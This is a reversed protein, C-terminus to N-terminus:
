RGHYQRGDRRRRGSSMAIPQVVDVLDDGAGPWDTPCMPARDLLDALASATKKECLYAIYDRDHLGFAPLGCSSALTNEAQSWLAQIAKKPEAHQLGQWTAPQMKKATDVYRMVFTMVAALGDRHDVERDRRQLPVLAVAADLDHSYANLEDLLYM